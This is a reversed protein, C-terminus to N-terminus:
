YDVKQKLDVNMLTKYFYVHALTTLVLMKEKINYKDSEELKVWLNKFMDSSVMNFENGVEVVANGLKKKLFFDENESYIENAYELVTLTYHDIPMKANIKITNDYMMKYAGMKYKGEVGMRTTIQATLIFFDLSSQNFMKIIELDNMSSAMNYVLQKTNDNVNNLSEIVKNMKEQEQDQNTTM